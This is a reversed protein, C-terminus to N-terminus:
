LVRPDGQKGVNGQQLLGGAGLRSEQGCGGLWVGTPSVPLSVCGQPERGAPIEHFVFM